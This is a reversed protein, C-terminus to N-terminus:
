NAWLTFWVGGVFAPAYSISDGQSMETQQPRSHWAQRCISGAVGVGGLFAIWILAQITLGPGTLAGFAALLNVDGGGMRGLLFFVLLTAFGVSADALSFGAGRLGGIAGNWVLGRVIAPYTPWGPGTTKRLDTTTVAFSRAAALIAPANM